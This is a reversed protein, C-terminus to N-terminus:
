SIVMDKKEVQSKHGKVSYITILSIVCTIMFYVAVPVYSGSFKLMLATAILPATGGALAAGAQYGLTVGTYRVEADFIEASLTGLVATIPTWIVGLGLVTAVSIWVPDKTNLLLFYPFAYLMMLVTGGAYMTKRGVRDAILGMLPIMITCTITAWTIATLVTAKPLALVNTVYTIVFTSLIYFPATEVVKLGTALLVERWHYKLTAVLPIGVQKGSKKSEEFEPTENLRFRLWLGIAVLVASSIFPIRWGWQLFEADTVYHGVFNLAATGFLMGLPVGMQPVSGFLSKTTKDSNEVAMLLAGGWEGGIGLGQIARLTMLAMPAYYGWQEYTPLCGILVTAGGMLSLTLILSKRRGLKDGIHAFVIGGFPRIFFPISFTVYSLMLGVAPDAKPFFLKGFVLAAATGYLFFDFWEIATGFLSAVLARKQDKTITAISM